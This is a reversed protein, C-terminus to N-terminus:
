VAVCDAEGYIHGMRSLEHEKENLDDQNTPVADVLLMRSVGLCISCLKTLIELLLYTGITTSAVSVFAHSKQLRLNMVFTYPTEM